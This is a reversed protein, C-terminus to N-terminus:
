GNNNLVKDCKNIFMDFVKGGDTAAFLEYDFPIKLKNLRDTRRELNIIYTKINMM